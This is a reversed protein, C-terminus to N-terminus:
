SDNIWSKVTFHVQKRIKQLTKKEKWPDNLPQLVDVFHVEDYFRYVEDNVVVRRFMAHLFSRVTHKKKGIRILEM